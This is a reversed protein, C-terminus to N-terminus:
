LIAAWSVAPLLASRGWLVSCLIVAWSVRDQPHIQRFQITEHHWLSTYLEAAMEVTDILADTM